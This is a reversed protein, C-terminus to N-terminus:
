KRGCRVPVKCGQPARTQLVALLTQPMQKPVEFVAVQPANDEDHYAIRFFHRRQLHKFLGIAITPLVGLQRARKETYEFSDIKAFPISVKGGSYEFQLATDLSTDLRGATGEKLAPVTGGVYAVQGTDVAVAALSITLFVALVIMKKL